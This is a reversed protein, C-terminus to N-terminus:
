TPHIPSWVDPNDTHVATLYYKESVRYKLVVPPVSLVLLIGNPNTEIKDRRTVRAEIGSRM